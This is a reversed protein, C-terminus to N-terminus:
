ILNFYTYGALTGTAPDVTLPNGSLAAVIVVYKGKRFDKMDVDLSIRNSRADGQLVQNNAMIGVDAKLDLAAPSTGPDPIIEWFLDTGAPLGTIGTITFNESSKRDGIPKFTVTAKSATQASPAPNGSALINFMASGTLDGLNTGMAPSDGSTTSVTVIYEGPLLAGADVANTVRNSTGDGESVQSNAMMGSFEGSQNHDNALASPKIEWIVETGVPLSTTGTMLFQDGAVRDSIHSLRIYDDKTVAANVPSETTLYAGKLTFTGTGQETGPKLDGQAIDGTMRIVTITHTGPKMVTTDIPISYRNKGGTGKRVVTDGGFSGTRVMLITGEPLNTSGSVILLDGTTQDAVPDVTISSAGAREKAQSTGTTGTEGSLQFRATGHVPGTRFDGKVPDGAVLSVNVFYEMPGFTSTDLDFAWRNSSGTSGTVKVVGTAGTFEGSKRGTTPDTTQPIFSSPYVDFLLESGEPLNTTGTIAFRDGTNKDSIPDVSIFSPVASFGTVLGVCIVVAIIGKAFISGLILPKNKMNDCHLTKQANHM